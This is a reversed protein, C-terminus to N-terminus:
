ITLSRGTVRGYRRAFKVWQRDIKLNRFWPIYKATPIHEPVYYGDFIVLRMADNERIVFMNAVGIDSVVVGKEKMERKVCRLGDELRRYDAETGTKALEGLYDGLVFLQREPTSEFFEVAIGVYSPSTLTGYFKPMFSATVGKRQLYTLYDAERVTQPCCFRASLKVCAGPFLPSLCSLREGGVGIRTWGDVDADEFRVSRGGLDGRYLPHIKPFEALIERNKKM